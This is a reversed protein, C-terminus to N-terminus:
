HSVSQHSESVLEHRNEPGGQIELHDACNEFCVLHCLSVDNMLVVKASWLIYSVESGLLKKRRRRRQGNEQTWQGM